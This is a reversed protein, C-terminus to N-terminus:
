HLENRRELTALEPRFKGALGACFNPWQPFFLVRFFDAEKLDKLVAMVQGYM